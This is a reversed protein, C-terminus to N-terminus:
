VELPGDDTEHEQTVKKEEARLRYSVYGLCLTANLVVYLFHMEHYIGWLTMNIAALSTGLGFFYLLELKGFQWLWNMEKRYLRLNRVSPWILHLIFLFLVSQFFYNPLQSAAYDPAKSLNPSLIGGLASLALGTFIGSTFILIRFTRDNSNFLRSAENLLIKSIDFIEQRTYSEKNHFLYLWYNFLLLLAIFFFLVSLWIFFELFM